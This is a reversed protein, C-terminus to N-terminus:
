YGSSVSAMTGSMINELDGTVDVNSPGLIFIYSSVKTLTGGLSYCCGSTFDFIRQALDVNIGELNLIVTANELLTDAIEETNEMSNPRIVCVEMTSSSTSSRRSQRMPTIKSSSSRSRSPEADRSRERSSARSSSKSSAKSAKSSGSLDLEEELDKLEDDEEFDDTDREERRTNKRGRSSLRDLFSKRPASDEEDLFGEEEDYFEDDSDYFDDVDEVDSNMKMADLLRDFVNM